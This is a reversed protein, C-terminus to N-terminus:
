KKKGRKSGRRRSNGRQALLEAADESAADEKIGDVADEFKQRVTGAAIDNFVRGALRKEDKKKRSAVGFIYLLGGVVLSAILTVLGDLGM